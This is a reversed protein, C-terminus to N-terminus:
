FRTDRDTEVRKPENQSSRDDRPAFEFRSHKERPRHKSVVWKSAVNFRGNGAGPAVLAACEGYCAALAHGTLLAMFIAPMWLRLKHHEAINAVTYRYWSFKGYGSHSTSTAYAFRPLM